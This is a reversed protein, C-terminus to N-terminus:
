EKNEPTALADQAQQMAFEIADEGGDTSIQYELNALAERLAKEATPAPRACIIRLGDLAELGDRSWISLHPQDQRITQSLERIAQAAINILEGNADVQPKDSLAACIIPFLSIAYDIEKAVQNEGSDIGDFEEDVMTGLREIEKKALVLTARIFNTATQNGMAKRIANDVTAMIMTYTGDWNGSVRALEIADDIEDAAEIAEYCIEKDM